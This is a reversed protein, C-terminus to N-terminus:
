ILIFKPDCYVLYVEHSVKCLGSRFVMWGFLWHKSFNAAVHAAGDFILKMFFLLWLWFIEYAHAWSGTNWVMSLVSLSLRM